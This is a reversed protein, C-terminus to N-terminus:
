RRWIGTYMLYSQTKFTLKEKMLVCMKEQVDSIKDSKEYVPGTAKVTGSPHARSTKKHVSRMHAAEHTPLGQTTFWGGYYSCQKQDCGNRICEIETVNKPPSGFLSDISPQM